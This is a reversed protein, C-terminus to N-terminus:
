PRIQTCDDCDGLLLQWLEERERPGIDSWGTMRAPRDPAATDVTIGWLSTIAAPSPAYRVDGIRWRGGNRDVSMYGDSFLAFRALDRGLVTGDFRPPAEFVPLSAGARVAPTGFWPVRIAATHWRGEAQYVSRWVVLNGITPFVRGREAVHGSREAWWTQAREAREHQWAAFALYVVAWALAGWAWQRQCRWFAVVVALLVPASFLPDIIALWDLAWRANTLPWGLHTGYSTVTDLVGHSLWGLLSYLYLRGFPLRRWFIFLLASTLLAGLPAFALAHTFHRHLMLGLLPDSSSQILVDLDAAMGSLVGVATAARLESRKAASQACAAGVVGQTLPDM